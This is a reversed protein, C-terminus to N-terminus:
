KALADNNRTETIQGDQDFYVSIYKTDQLNHLNDKEIGFFASLQENKVPPLATRRDVKRFRFYNYLAWIALTSGLLSIGKLFFFLDQYLLQNGNLKIMHVYFLDIGTWWGILTILPMWLYLWIVWFVFTLLTSLYKQKLSQLNPSDIILPRM